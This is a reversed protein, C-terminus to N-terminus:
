FCEEAAFHITGNLAGSEGVTALSSVAVDGSGGVALMASARFQISTTTGDVVGLSTGPTLTLALSVERAQGDDEASVGLQPQIVHANKSRTTWNSGGDVSSELFLLVVANHSTTVNVMDCRVQARYKLGEKPTAFSLSLPSPGGFGGSAFVSQSTPVDLTGADSAVMTSQLEDLRLRAGSGPKYEGGTSNSIVPGSPSLRIAKNVTM